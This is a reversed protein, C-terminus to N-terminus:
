PSAFSLFLELLSRHVVNARYTKWLFLGQAAWKGKKQHGRLLNSREFSYRDITQAEKFNEIKKNLFIRIISMILYIANDYRLLFYDVKASYIEFLKYEQIM